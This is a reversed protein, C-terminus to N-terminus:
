KIVNKYKKWYNMYNQKKLFSIVADECVNLYLLFEHYTM